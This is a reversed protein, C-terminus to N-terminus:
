KLIGKESAREIIDKMYQSINEPGSFTVENRKLVQEKKIGHEKWSICGAADNLMTPQVRDLIACFVAEKSKGEEFERWLKIYEDKQDEPLMGYIKEASQREREDKDEYGKADYCYTDGAYIEVVDHMLMMKIVKLLDVDKDFYESLVVAMICAHWSHEADNEFRSKDALYTQRFISKVKDIELLFDMQKKFREEMFFWSRELLAFLM